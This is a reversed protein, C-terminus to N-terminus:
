CHWSPISPLPKNEPRIVGGNWSPKVPVGAYVSQNPPQKPPYILSTLMSASPARHLLCLVSLHCQLFFLFSSSSLCCFHIILLSTRVAPVSRDLIGKAPLRWAATRLHRTWSVIVATKLCFLSPLAHQERFAPRGNDQDTVWLPIWCGQVLGTLTLPLVLILMYAHLLIMRYSGSFIWQLNFTNEKWAWM